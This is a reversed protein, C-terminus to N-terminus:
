NNSQHIVPTDEMEATKSTLQLDEPFYHFIARNGEKLDKKTTPRYLYGNRFMESIDAANFMGIRGYNQVQSTVGSFSSEAIDNTVMKGIM